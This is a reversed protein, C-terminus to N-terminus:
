FSFTLNYNILRTSLTTILLSVLTTKGDMINEMSTELIKLDEQQKRIISEIQAKKMRLQKLVYNRYKIDEFSRLFIM